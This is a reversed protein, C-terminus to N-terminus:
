GVLRNGRGVGGDDGRLLPREAGLFRNGRQAGLDVPEAGDVHHGDLLEVLEFRAVAEQRRSRLVQDIWRESWRLSQLADVLRRQLAEGLREGRDVAVELRREARQEAAAAGAQRQEVLVIREFAADLDDRLRRALPQLADLQERAALFASVAIASINPM